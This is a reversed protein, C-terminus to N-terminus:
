KRRSKTKKVKVLKDVTEASYVRGSPSQVGVFVKSDSMGQTVAPGTLRKKFAMKAKTNKDRVLDSGNIYGALMKYPIDNGKKDQGLTGYEYVPYIDHYKPRKKEENAYKTGAFTTKMENEWDNVKKVAAAHGKSKTRRSGTILDHAAIGIMGAGALANFGLMAKDDIGLKHGSNKAIAPIAVSTATPFLGAGALAPANKRNELNAIVDAKRILRSLKNEAKKHHRALAKSNGKEIAKRVGWKMGKVGYHALHDTSRQVAYYESM